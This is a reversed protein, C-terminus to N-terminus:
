ARSGKGVVSQRQPRCADCDRAFLVAGANVSRWDISVYIEEVGVGAGPAAEPLRRRFHAAVVQRISMVPEEPRGLILFFVWM